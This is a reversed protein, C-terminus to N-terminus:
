FGAEVPTLKLVPMNFDKVNTVLCPMNDLPLIIIGSHKAQFIFSNTLDVGYIAKKNLQLFKSISTKNLQDQLPSYKLLLSKKQASLNLTAVSFYVILIFKM